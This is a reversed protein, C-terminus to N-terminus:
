VVSRLERMNTKKYLQHGPLTELNVYIEVKANQSLDSLNLTSKRYAREIERVSRPEVEQVCGSRSERTV